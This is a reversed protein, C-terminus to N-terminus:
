LDVVVAIDYQGCSVSNLRSAVSVASRLWDGLSHTIAAPRGIPNVNRKSKVFVKDISEL